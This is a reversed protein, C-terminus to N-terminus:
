RVLRRDPRPVPEGDGTLAYPQSSRASANECLRPQGQTCPFCHRCPTSWLLIVQHGVDVDTVESGREVVTGCAEHGPMAPLPQALKGTALSLDSHCVGTQEIRVRVDGPGVAKLRISEVAMPEGVARLVAARVGHPYDSTAAAHAQTGAPVSV